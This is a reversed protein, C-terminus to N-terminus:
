LLLKHMRFPLPAAIHESDFPRPEGLDVPLHAPDQGQVGATCFGAVQQVEPVQRTINQADHPRPEGLGVPITQFGTRLVWSARDSSIVFAHSLLIM